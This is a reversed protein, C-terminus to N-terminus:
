CSPEKDRTKGNTSPCKERGKGGPTGSYFKSYARPEKRKVMVKEKPAVVKLAKM